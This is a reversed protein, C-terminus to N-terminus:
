SIMNATRMSIVLREQYYAVRSGSDQEIRRESIPFKQSGDECSVSVCADNSTPLPLYCEYSRFAASPRRLKIYLKFVGRRRVRQWCTLVM